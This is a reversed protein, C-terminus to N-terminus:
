IFKFTKISDTLVAGGGTSDSRKIELHCPIFGTSKGIYFRTTEGSNYTVEVRKGEHGIFPKYLGSKSRWGTKQHKDSAIKVIKYYFKLSAKSGARFNPKEINLEKSLANIKRLVVDFGLCSYGGGSNFVFLRQEKNILHLNKM